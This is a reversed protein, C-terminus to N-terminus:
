SVKTVEDWPNRDENLRKQCEQCVKPVDPGGASIFGRLPGGCCYCGKPDLAQERLGTVAPGKDRPAVM